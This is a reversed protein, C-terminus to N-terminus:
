MCSAISSSSSSPEKVSVEEANSKKARDPHGDLGDLAASIREFLIRPGHAEPRMAILKQSTAKAAFLDSRSARDTGRALLAHALGCITDGNNPQILNAAHLDDLAQDLKKCAVKVLGRQRLIIPNSPAHAVAKEIWYEAEEVFALRMYAISLWYMTLANKPDLQLAFTLDAVAPTHLGLLVKAAGVCRRAVADTQMAQAAYSFWYHAQDYQRQRLHHEGNVLCYKGYLQLDISPRTCPM